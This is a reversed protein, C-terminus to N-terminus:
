WIDDDILLHMGNMHVEGRNWNSEYEEYKYWWKIRCWENLWKKLEKGEMHISMKGHCIGCGWGWGDHYCMREVHTIVMSKFERMLCAYPSLMNKRYAENREDFLYEKIKDMIAGSTTKDVETRIRKIIKKARFYTEQNM